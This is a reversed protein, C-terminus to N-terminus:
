KTGRQNVLIAARIREQKKRRKIAAATFKAARTVSAAQDKVAAKNVSTPSKNKSKIARKLRVVSSKLHKAGMKEDKGGAGPARKFKKKREAETHSPM